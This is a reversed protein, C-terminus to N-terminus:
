SMLVHTPNHNYRDRNWTINEKLVQLPHGGYIAHSKELRGSVIASNGIICSDPILSGKLVRTHATLWVHNGIVVSKADNTRIGNKMDIISHSDGNRIEIDNSFMCNDGIIIAQGETSAIHGSGMYFHRGIRISSKDDELVLKTGYIRGGCIVVCCDAGSTTISTNRLVTMPAIEVHSGKGKIRFTTRRLFVGRCKLKGTLIPILPYSLFIINHVFAVIYLLRPNKKIIEKLSM